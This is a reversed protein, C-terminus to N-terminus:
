GHSFSDEERLQSRNKAWSIRDDANDEQLEHTQTGDENAEIEANEVGLEGSARPKWPSSAQVPTSGLLAQREALRRLGKLVVLAAPQDAFYNEFGQEDLRASRVLQLAAM